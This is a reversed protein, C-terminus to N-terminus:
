QLVQALESLGKDDVIRRAATAVSRSGPLGHRAVVNAVAAASRGPPEPVPRVRHDGADLYHMKSIRM